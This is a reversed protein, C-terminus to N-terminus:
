SELDADQINFYALAAVLLQLHGESNDHTRTWRAAQVLEQSTPNLAELDALHKGPGNHDVAAYLKLHVQDLRSAFAVTLSPGYVVRELREEFGDPMGFDFMSAPGNNLWTMPVAFDRAVRDRAVVLPGPLPDASRVRQGSRLGLVDVDRTPREVLGLALLASGGVVVLEYEEGLVYLQEALARLLEDAAQAHAIVDSM